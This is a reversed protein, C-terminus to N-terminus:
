PLPVPVLSLLRAIVARSESSGLSRSSPIVRHSLVAVAVSKIDDPVVYDRGRLFALSQATRVLFITGRPSAGLSLAEDERTARVLSV